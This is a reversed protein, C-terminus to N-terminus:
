VIMVDSAVARYRAVSKFHSFCSYARVYLREGIAVTGQGGLAGEEEEEEEEVVVVVVVVVEEEGEM